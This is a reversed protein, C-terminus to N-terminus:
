CEFGFLLSGYSMFMFILVLNIPIKVWISLNRMADLPRGMGKTLHEIDSLIVGFVFLPLNVIIASVLDEGNQKKVDYTNYSTWEYRDTITPIYLFLLLLLYM